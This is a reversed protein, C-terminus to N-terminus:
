TNKVDEEGKQHLIAAPQSFRCELTELRTDVVLAIDLTEHNADAVLFPYVRCM